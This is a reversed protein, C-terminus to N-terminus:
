QFCCGFWCFMSWCLLLGRFISEVRLFICLSELLVVHFYHSFSFFYDLGALSIRWRLSVSRRLFLWCCMVCLWFFVLTFLSIFIKFSAAAGRDTGCAAGLHLKQFAAAARCDHVEHHTVNVFMTIPLRAFNHTSLIIHHVTSVPCSRDRDRGNWIRVIWGSWSLRDHLKGKGGEKVENDRWIVGIKVAAYNELASFSRLGDMM